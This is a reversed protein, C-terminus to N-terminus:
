ETRNIESVSLEIATKVEDEKTYERSQLRGKVFVYDGKNYNNCKRANSNWVVTPIFNLHESKDGVELILDTIETGFPTLRNIPDKCIRGTITVEDKYPLLTKEIFYPYVYVKVHGNQNCTRIEGDINIFDDKMLKLKRITKGYIIVTLTDDVLSLRKTKVQFSYYDNDGIFHNLVIESSIRGVLFIKNM